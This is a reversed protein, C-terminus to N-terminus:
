IEFAKEWETTKMQTRKRTDKSSSNKWRNFKNTKEKHNTGTTDEKPFGERNQKM